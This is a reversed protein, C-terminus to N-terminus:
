YVFPYTEKLAIFGEMQFFNEKKILKVEGQIKLGGKFYKIGWLKSGKKILRWKYYSGVRNIGIIEVGKYLILLSDKM